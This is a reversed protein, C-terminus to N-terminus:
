EELLKMELIQDDHLNHIRLSYNAADLLAQLPVLGVIESETISVGYAHAESKVLNFVTHIATKKFNTLNMSIQVQGRAPIDLGLGKVYRLGGSSNRVTKAIAKAVRVDATNLYINYAILAGRAGTILAGASEHVKRPGVDPTRDEDTAIVERLEEFGKGRVTELNQREPRAAAAEYFYVPINLEAAVREGLRKAAAVAETMPTDGLPIFPVVDTAGVRPHEGSHERLDILDTAAHIARFTAEELAGGIGALSLVSRNHDEDSHVDLVRVGHVSRAADVIRDIVEPRRGESFNPVCEM